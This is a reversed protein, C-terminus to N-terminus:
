RTRRHHRSPRTRCQGARPRELLTEWEDVAQNDQGWMRRELLAMREVWETQVRCLGTASAVYLGPTTDHATAPLSPPISHQPRTLRLSATFHLLGADRGITVGGSRSCVEGLECREGSAMSDWEVRDCGMPSYLQSLGCQAVRHRASHSGTRHTVTWHCGRVARRWWLGAHQQLTKEARNAPMGRGAQAESGALEVSGCLGQQGRPATRARWQALGPEEGGAFTLSDSGAISAGQGLGTRGTPDPAALPPVTRVRHEILAVHGPVGTHVASYMSVASVSRM